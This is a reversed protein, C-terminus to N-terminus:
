ASVLLWHMLQLASQAVHLSKGSLHRVQASGALVQDLKLHIEEQPAPNVATPPRHQGLTHVPHSTVKAQEPQM